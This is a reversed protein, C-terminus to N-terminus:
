GGPIDGDSGAGIHGAIRVRGVSLDPFGTPLADNKEDPNTDHIADEFSFTGVRRPNV